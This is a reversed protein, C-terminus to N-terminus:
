EVNRTGREANPLGHGFDYLGPLTVPLRGRPAAESALAAGLADLMAADAGYTALATPVAPYAVLDYPEHLAVAVVPKGWGLVANVFAAQAPFRNAARTGILVIDAADVATRAAAADNGSPERGDIVVGQARPFRDRLADALPSTAPRAEALLLTWQQFFCDLVALRADRRAPLLGADDRILTLADRAIAAAWQRHEPAGLRAPDAPGQAAVWRKLRAIRMASRRVQGAPIRGSRVAALIAEYVARDDALAEVLDGGAAIFRIAGEVVGWRSAIAEMRMADSVIVGDFGLEDRLLGTLVAHSLTAPLGEGAPDLASFAIHASMIAPVGAGIVAGFPPLETARLRALGHEIAPLDYHSDVHTDGHGPFHKAVAVAGGERLGLLAATGLRTVLEVAEGFSRTGIVPNRPNNNVDLVPAFNTNIGASRLERATALGWHRAHAASRTAGLAMASPFSTAPPKLRQVRGGEQDAAILAPLGPRRGTGCLAQVRATLAHLQAPAEVNRGLLLVNGVHCERFFAATEADLETGPVPACILQGVQEELPMADVTRAAQTDEDRGAATEM